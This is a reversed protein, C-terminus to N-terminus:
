LFPNSNGAAQLFTNWLDPNIGGTKLYDCICPHMAHFTNFGFLSTFVVDDTFSDDFHLEKYSEVFTRFLDHNRAMKWLKILTNGIKEDNIDDLQFVQLIEHRFLEDMMFDAEERGDDSLEDYKEQLEDAIQKYKVIFETDYSLEHTQDQKDSNSM